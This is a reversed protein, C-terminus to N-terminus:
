LFCLILKDLIRQSDRQQDDQSRQDVVLPNQSHVKTRAAYNYLAGLVSLCQTRLPFGRLQLGFVLFIWDVASNINCLKGSCCYCKSFTVCPKIRKSENQQSIFVYLNVQQLLCTHCMSQQSLVQRLSCLGLPSPMSRPM